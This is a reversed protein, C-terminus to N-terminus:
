ELFQTRYSLRGKKYEYIRYAAQRGYRGSVPESIFLPINGLFHMEGRHFDGTIAAVVNNDELLKIWQQKKNEPWGPRLTNNYFNEVPPEHHFLIVPKGDAKKLAKELWDLPEYANAQQDYVFLFVVGEYEASSSLAGWRHIFSQTSDNEMMDHNGPLVHLPLSLKSLEVKAVNQFDGPEALDGTHVVCVLPLSSANLASVVQQTREQGDLIGVHTDTMQAFYFHPGNESAPETTCNLLLLAILSGYRVWTSRGKLKKANHM